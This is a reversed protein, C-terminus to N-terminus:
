PALKRIFYNQNVEVFEWNDNLVLNWGDGYIHNKGTRLGKANIRLHRYNNSVLCGTKDVTLKGWNDSVRLRSYLIGLTDLAHVDEPEFDFYPSELEIFVVPKETFLAVQKDLREKIDRLRQEEENKIEEFNYSFAISGAVDRCIAPLEIGYVEKVLKGLDTKESRITKFDFMNQSLLTAYLAGHIFGYSRSYSQFSYIMEFQERMRKRFEDPSESILSIYTFTTLGEYTEFRIQDATFAPYTEHCAGRFILADRIALLKEEGCSNLAKILAKWELKLLLRAQQEDLNSTNYITYLDPWNELQFKHFLSHIARAKIRYEDEQEPLPVSAFMTGGFRIPANSIIMERPYIGTYVHERSKLLEEGDSQNATIKRTRRDIFMLPSYLEKGWLKGSDRACIKEILGFYEVAKEPTFYSDEEKEQCSILAAFFFLFLVKKM